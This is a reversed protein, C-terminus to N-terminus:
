DAAFTTTSVSFAGEVAAIFPATAEWRYKWLGPTVVPFTLSYRGTDSVTFGETTDTETPTPRTPEIVRLKFTAPTLAERTAPDLFTVALTVSQGPLYTTM